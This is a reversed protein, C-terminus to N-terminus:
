GRRKAEEIRGCVQLWRMEDVQRKSADEISADPAKRAIYADLAALLQKQEISPAEDSAVGFLLWHASVGLSDSLLRLERAAPLAQGAEYRLLATASVGRLEPEDWAKTARSLADVSMGFHQRVRQLRSGLNREPPEGVPAPMAVLEFRKLRGEAPDKPAPMDASELRTLVAGKASVPARGWGGFCGDQPSAEAECVSAGVPCTAVGRLWRIGLAKLCKAFGAKLPSQRKQAM